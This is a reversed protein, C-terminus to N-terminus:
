VKRYLGDRGIHEAAEMESIAASNGFSFITGFPSIMAPSAEDGGVSAREDVENEDAAINAASFVSMEIRSITVSAIRGVMQRYHGVEGYFLLRRVFAWTYM